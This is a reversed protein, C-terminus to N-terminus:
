CWIRSTISHIYMSYSLWDLCLSVITASIVEKQTIECWYLFLKTVGRCINKTHLSHFASQDIYLIETQLNWWKWAPQSLQLIFGFLCFAMDNINNSATYQIQKLHSFFHTCHIYQPWLGSIPKFINVIIKTYQIEHDTTSWVPYIWCLITFAIFSQEDLTCCDIHV